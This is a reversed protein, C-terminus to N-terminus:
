KLQLYLKKRIRFMKIKVNSESIGVIFAIESVSKDELYFMTLLAKEDPKLMQIKEKLKSVLQENKDDEFFNDITEDIINKTDVENFFSYSKKKKRVASIASNYTIRYIWTSFKSDGKFSKLNRFVKIFVDQVVEEADENCVVIQKVMRFVSNGYNDVIMAFMNTNGALISKIIDLENEM